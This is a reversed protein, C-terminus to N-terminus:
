TGGGPLGIFLVPLLLMTRRWSPRMFQEALAIVLLTQWLEL